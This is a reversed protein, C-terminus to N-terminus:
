LHMTRGVAVRFPRERKWANQDAVLPNDRIKRRIRKEDLAEYDIPGILGFANRDTELYIPM